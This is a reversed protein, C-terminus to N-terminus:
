KNYIKLEDELKKIEQLIEDRQIELENADLLRRQMKLEIRRQAFNPAQDGIDGM